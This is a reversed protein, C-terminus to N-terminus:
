GRGKSEPKTPTEKQKEANTSALTSSGQGEPKTPTEAQEEIQQEMDTSASSQRGQGQHETAM